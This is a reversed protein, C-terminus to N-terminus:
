PSCPSFPMATRGVGVRSPPAPAAGERARLSDRGTLQRLARSQADLALLVRSRGAYQLPRTCAIRTPVRWWSQCAQARCLARGCSGSRTGLRRAEAPRVRRRRGPSEARRRGSPRKAYVARSSFPALRRTSRLFPTRDSRSPSPASAIRGEPLTVDCPRPASAVITTPIGIEPSSSSAFRVTAASISWIPKSGTSAPVSAPPPRL